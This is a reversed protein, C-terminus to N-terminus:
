IPIPYVTADWPIEAFGPQPIHAELVGSLQVVLSSQSLKSGHFSESSRISM